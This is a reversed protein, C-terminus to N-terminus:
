ERGSVERFSSQLTGASGYATLRSLPTADYVVAPGQNNLLTTVGSLVTNAGLGSVLTDILTTLGLSKLADRITGCPNLLYGVLNVLGELLGRLIGTNSGSCIPLADILDNSSFEPPHLGVVGSGDVFVAGNVRAAKGITVVEAQRGTDHQENLAYIVGNFVSNPNVIVRGKGVVVAAVTHNSLTCRGTGNGVQEVFVVSTATVSGFPICPQGDAVSSAYTGQRTAQQRLSTISRSSAASPSGYAQVQSSVLNLNDVIPIEKLTTLAGEVCLDSVVGCRIGIKGGQVFEQNGILATLVPGATTSKDMLSQLTVNVGSGIGLKGAVVGYGTPLASQVNVQALAAVRTTRGDVTATARVWMRRATFPEGTPSTLAIAGNADYAAGALAGDTWTAPAIADDCVNVSWTASSYESGASLTDAVRDQIREALTSPSAVPTVGGAISQASCSAVQTWPQSATQSTPWDQALHFATSDLVTEALGFSTSRERQEGTAGAQTEVLALLAAGAVLTAVMLVMAAVMTWGDEDHGFRRLLTTLMLM